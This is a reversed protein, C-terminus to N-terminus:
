WFCGFDKNLAEFFTKQVVSFIEKGFFRTGELKGVSKEDLDLCRSVRVASSQFKFFFVINKKMIQYFFNEGDCLLIEKGINILSLM